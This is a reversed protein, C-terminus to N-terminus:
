LCFKCHFIHKDYFIILADSGTHLLVLISLFVQLIYLLEEVVRRNEREFYLDSSFFYIKFLINYCQIM